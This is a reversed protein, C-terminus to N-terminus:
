LPKCYPTVTLPCTSSHFAFLSRKAFSNPIMDKFSTTNSAHSLSQASHLSLPFCSGRGSSQRACAATGMSGLPPLTVAFATEVRPCVPQQGGAATAPSAPSCEPFTTNPSPKTLVRFTGCDVVPAHGSAMQLRDTKVWCIKVHLCYAPSIFPTKPSSTTDPRLPPLGFGEAWSRCARLAQVPRLLQDQDTVTCCNPIGKMTLPM